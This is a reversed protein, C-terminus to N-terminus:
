RETEIWMRAGDSAVHIWGRAGTVVWNLPPAPLDAQVLVAQPQLAQWAQPPTEQLDEASLILLSPALLSPDAKLLAAPPVGGPILARLTGYELVLAAQGEEPASVLRLTLGEDLLLSSGPPLEAAAIGQARWTDNLRYANRGEAAAGAWLAQGAPFGQLVDPLGELQSKSQGALIVAALRHDFPPLRRGLADALSRADPASNLLVAKGGPTGLLAADADAIGPLTIHLRGDPATLASRMLGACLLAAALLLALPRAQRRLPHLLAGGLTLSFLLLYCALALWATFSQLVLVSGPLKALWEVMRITYTTLPLALWALAQGLPLWILGGLLALGGLIMVLPQAPLVLPNALLTSISLRQFHYAIVPLTTIQAALTFLLYEGIPGALRRATRPSYRREAWRTFGAQLPDAYLVLGLTAMFSLQFSADWLLLPNALCMLAATFSLSTPGSQRRGILHGLLGMVAMVAARVVAPSAGVLLTYFILVAGAGLAAGTKRLARGLLSICLGALITMNFGSIAIIHATGTDRFAGQLGAPIGNDNGLLIGTLLAAEPQPFIRALVGAAHERLAYLIYLVRSGRGHQLLEVQPYYIITHIGQQALYARYSFGESEFPTRPEGSLQVLDGYRWARGNPLVALFNGGADGFFQGEASLSEVRLRLRTEDARVDPTVSVMGTLTVSGGDNYYALHRPTFRPQAAQWRLAGLALALLILGPAVALAKRWAPPATWRREHKEWVAAAIGAAALGAWAWGPLGAADALAIGALFALALWLLPM